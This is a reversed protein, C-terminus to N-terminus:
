QAHHWLLLLTESNKPKNVDCLMQVRWPNRPLNQAWNIVSDTEDKGGPHGTYCHITMVGSARVLPLLAQCAALTTQACTANRKQSGPLFGLNFMVAALNCPMPLYDPAHEHGDSIFEVRSTMGTQELRDTASKVAEPQIDFAWVKGNKGVLDALFLTDHGNGTTADVATDGPRVAIRVAGRAFDLLGPSSIIPLDPRHM